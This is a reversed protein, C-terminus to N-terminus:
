KTRFYCGAEKAAAATSANFKHVLKKCFL